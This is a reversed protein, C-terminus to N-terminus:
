GCIVYCNRKRRATQAPRTQDEYIEALSNVTRILEASDPGRARNYLEFARLFDTEAEHLHMSKKYSQARDFAERAAIETAPCQTSDSPPITSPRMTVKLLDIQNIRPLPQVNQYYNSDSTPPKSSLDVSHNPTYPGHVGFIPSNTQLEPTSDPPPTHPPPIISTGITLPALNNQTTVKRKKSTGTEQLTAPDNNESFLSQYYAERQRKTLKVVPIQELTKSSHMAVKAKSNRFSNLPKFGDMEGMPLESGEPNM